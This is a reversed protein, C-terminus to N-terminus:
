SVKMLIIKFSITEKKTESAVGGLNLGDYRCYLLLSNSTLTIGKEIIGRNLATGTETISGYGYQKNEGSAKAGIAIIISNDSTYGTPYDIYKTGTFVQEMDKTMTIEMTGTVVAINAQTVNITVDKSGDFSANGSVAGQIKINRATKLKNTSGLILVLIVVLIVVILM